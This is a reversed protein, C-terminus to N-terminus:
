PLPKPARLKDTLGPWVSLLKHAIEEEGLQRGSVEATEPAM